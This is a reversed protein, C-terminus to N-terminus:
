EWFFSTIIQIYGKYNFEKLYKFSCNKNIAQKELNRTVKSELIILKQYEFFEYLFLLLKVETRTRIKM